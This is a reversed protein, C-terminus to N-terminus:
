FGFGALGTPFPIFNSSLILLCIGPNKGAYRKNALPFNAVPFSRSALIATVLTKCISELFSYPEITFAIILFFFFSKSPAM